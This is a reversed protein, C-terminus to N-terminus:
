KVPEAKTYAWPINLLRSKGLKKIKFKYVRTKEPIPEDDLDLIEIKARHTGSGIAAVQDRDDEYLEKVSDKDVTVRVAEFPEYTQGEISYEMNDVFFDYAKGHDYCVFAILVFFAIIGLNVLLRKKSM